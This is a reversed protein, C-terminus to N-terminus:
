EGTSQQIVLTRSSCVHFGLIMGLKGYTSVPTLIQQREELELVEQCCVVEESWHLLLLQNSVVM